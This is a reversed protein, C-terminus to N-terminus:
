ASKYAKKTEDAKDAAAKADAAAKEAAAKADAAAKEKEAKAAAASGTYNYQVPKVATPNPLSIATINSWSNDNIYLMNWEPGGKWTTWSQVTPDWLEKNMYDTVQNLGNVAAVMLIYSVKM